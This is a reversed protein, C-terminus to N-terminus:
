TRGRRCDRERRSHPSASARLPPPLRPAPLRNWGAKSTASKGRIVACTYRASSTSAPSDRGGSPHSDETENRRRRVRASSGGRGSYGARVIGRQRILHGPVRGGRASLRLSHAPTSGRDRARAAAQRAAKERCRMCAPSELREIAQGLEERDLAVGTSTEWVASSGVQATGGTAMTTSRRPRIM